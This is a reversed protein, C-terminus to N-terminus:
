TANKHRDLYGQLVSLEEATAKRGLAVLYLEELRERDVRKDAALKAARGGKDAIKGLIETSNIMHLSQALTADSSRECECASGFDPRGFVSLFYSESLNDPLQVARAVTASGKLSSKTATVQDIADLLVEAPLRRPLFRSYNQRDSANFANPVASL